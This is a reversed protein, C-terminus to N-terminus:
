TVPRILARRSLPGFLDDPAEFPVRQDPNERWQRDLSRLMESSCGFATAMLDFLRDDIVLKDDQVALLMDIALLNQGFHRKDNMRLALTETHWGRAQLEEAVFSALPHVEAPLM